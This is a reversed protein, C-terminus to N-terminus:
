RDFKTIFVRCLEGNIDIDVANEHEEFEIAQALTEQIVYQENESIARKLLPTPYAFIIIRDSVEFGSDKRLKQICSVFERAAGEALLSETLQTDLAVAIGDQTAVSWGEMSESRIDVDEPILKFPVGNLDFEIWGQNEFNRIEDGTMDKIRAALYQMHKGARKGLSKFNPRAKKTVIANNEDVYEIFKVNIEDRISQEIEPSMTYNNGVPILVRYLPQRIKIKSRERLSRVLSTIRIARFMQEELSFDTRGYEGSSPITALHVSDEEIRHLLKRYLYDSLFPAFPAAFRCIAVLCEHLTQYAAIKDADREGKWFRQRNRRVYWNSLEEIMFESVLRAARTPDYADMADTYKVILSNIRSLIWKDIELRDDFPIRQLQICDINDLNAYLAFFAYTNTWARFFNSQVARIDEEDFSTSRWPPSNSILYWRTCRGSATNLISFPDVVNGKSKSMKHGTKDLILENVIINKFAPKGFIATAIAHLTYFWGRTQDIGEAIFDAPFDHEFREKNEFPYHWQAFPMSGSDFWVDILEPTRRM